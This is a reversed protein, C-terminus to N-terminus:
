LLLLSIKSVTTIAIATTKKGICDSQPSPLNVPQENEKRSWCFVFMSYYSANTNFVM